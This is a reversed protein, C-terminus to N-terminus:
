IEVKLGHGAAVGAFWGSIILVRQKQPVAAAGAKEPPRSNALGTNM